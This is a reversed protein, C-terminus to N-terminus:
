YKWLEAEAIKRIDALTQTRVLKGDLFVTELAGGAEEERTVGDRMTLRGDAGYDVRLLGKASRKTGDDTKPNKYIEVDGRTTTRGFTAKIAIGHTDRTVHQYNYSGLGLVVNDSSYGTAHLGTLIERQRERTIQEGYILGIHPDLTKFKKATETSGFIEDLLRISGKHEPTGAPASSDGVVIKVPDGSDPRVVLKGPRAMIENKLAPLVKTIVNWYDWTDSVISVIGTPYVETLMRRYTELEGEESGMCMVSHETASVSGGILESDSNADYYEELFDISPITDTGTFYIMHGAGSTMAAELGPMGRFAFDHGQWPVFPNVADSVTLKSFTEFIQRYHRANTASTCPQWVTCSLLTEIMNTVWFFEPLTNRLTLAAVGYPVFTGEPVAKIHLPLYGVDHLAAIHDYTIAGKGLYNDIRRSYKKLVLDKPLSFFNETFHQILYRTVFYQLSFLVMGSFEAHRGKRPTLNSYVEQSDKPYQFPHGVKYGDKLLTSIINM